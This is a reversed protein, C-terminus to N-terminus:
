NKSITISGSITDVDFHTEGNKYVNTGSKKGSFSTFDNTVKGSASEYNLTFGPNEPLSINVSGSVSEIDCDNKPMTNSSVVIKGSVSNIDFTEKIDSSIETKGSVSEADLEEVVCDVVETTGSVSEIDLYSFDCDSISVNGSVTSIEMKKAIINSIDVQGSVLEVQNQNLNEAIVKPLKVIVMDDNMSLKINNRNPVKIRLIDNDLYVKPRKEESFSSEVTIEIYNNDWIELFLEEHVLSIDLSSINNTLEYINTNSRTESPNLLEGSVKKDFGIHFSWNNLSFFSDGNLGRILIKTLCLAIIFWIIALVIKGSKNM